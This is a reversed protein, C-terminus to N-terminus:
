QGSITLQGHARVIDFGLFVAASLQAPRLVARPLWVSALRM